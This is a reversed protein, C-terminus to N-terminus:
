YRGSKAYGCVLVDGDHMTFIEMSDRGEPSVTHNWMMGKYIVQKTVRHNYKASLQELRRNNEMQMETEDGSLKVHISESKQGHSEPLKNENIDM